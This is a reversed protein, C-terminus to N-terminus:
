RPVREAEMAGDQESTIAAGGVGALYPVLKPLARGELSPSAADSLLARFLAPDEVADALIQSARDSSLRGLLEKMRSSAMQATQLSGGGGGGIQAGQRAAAVRALYEILKNAKAGSLSGGISPAAEGAADLKRLEAAIRRMRGLEASSFIQRLAARSKPANLADELGQGRLGSKAILHDSLLAKLGAMAEGTEDKRAENVIRRAASVPNKAETFARIAKEPSGDLLAAGASRRANQLAAIRGEIRRAFTDADTREKVADFIDRRLDPYRQLLEANDRMFRHASAANFEGTASVASRQFQGKLYDEVYARADPAATEIQRSAVSAETGGRGVTRRLSLEPDIATDGELTKKMLRGVAGRDFTEHLAASYARAENITRGIESSADIAGLDHLISDALENSIRALNRNQDNGAMASRAVRRLESYLGHMEAVTEEAGFGQEGLLLDRAVRPIDGQQARPTEKAIRAAADRTRATTVTAERPVADWLRQEELTARDLAMRLRRSVESSNAGEAGRADIAAVAGQTRGIAEDARAQLNNAFDARRSEFFDRTAQIDGEAVIGQRAADRSADVRQELRARLNPDQEAALQELALMNPDETQQAPSLGLPNDTSIREALQGARERGGALQEMRQRAVERGGAKTYPALAARGERIATRALVAGPAVRSVQRAAAAGAPLSFPAAVAAVGQAWEPAGAQQAAEQGAGSLGGAAAESVAGGTTTMARYADDALQGVMGGAGRLAGAAGATPVMAGAAQGAGRAFGEAVTQPEGQAVEIGGSQMLNELGTQASGTYRDFPNLFDVLGGAAEAIGKNVQSMIPFRAKEEGGTSSLRRIEQAFLRADAEAQKDGQQARADAKMFADQLQDLETM